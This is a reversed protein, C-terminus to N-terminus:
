YLRLNIRSFFYIIQLTVINKLFTIFTRFSHEAGKNGYNHNEMCLVVLFFFYKM